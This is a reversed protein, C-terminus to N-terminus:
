RDTGVHLADDGFLGRPVEIKNRGFLSGPVPELTKNAFFFNVCRRRCVEMSVMEHLRCEHLDHIKLLIPLGM